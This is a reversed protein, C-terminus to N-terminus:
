VDEAFWQDIIEEIENVKFNTLSGVVGSGSFVYWIEFNTVLEIAGDEEREMLRILSRYESSFCNETTLGEEEDGDIDRAFELFLGKERYEQPIKYNSALEECAKELKSIREKLYGDFEEKEFELTESAENKKRKFWKM